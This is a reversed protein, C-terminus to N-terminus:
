NSGKMATNAAQQAQALGSTVAMQGAFMSEFYPLYATEAAAYNAGSPAQVYGNDLVQIMPSIDINQSKWFNFFPSRANKVATLAAGKAGIYRAGAGGLWKLVKQTATPNKSYKSAAAVIGNTVSIAGAPGAPIRAIGWKFNAGQLVNALNYSGSEFLALKGQIFLDRSLDGGAPPNTELAPPSVKSTNILDVLYQITQRGKASDFTFSDGQQWSAGNSGLFNLVIANLDFAANFGYSSIRTADFAPDDASHGQSDLTLKSAATRLSDTNARPDWKLKNLQGVTYGAQELLTQNYYLGIGPDSLQPVGWLQKKDTYQRIVSSDWNNWESGYDQKTIPQLLGARAYNKFNGANVWFIDGATKTALDTHLQTWYNAWPIVVTNVRIGTQRYFQAFSAQYASAVGSDWLRVTVTPASANAAAIPAITMAGLGVM